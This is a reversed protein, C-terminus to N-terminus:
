EANASTPDALTGIFVHLVIQMVHFCQLLLMSSNLCEPVCSSVVLLECVASVSTPFM